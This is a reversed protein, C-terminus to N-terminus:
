RALVRPKIAEHPPAPPEDSDQEVQPFLAANIERFLDRAYVTMLATRVGVERMATLREMKKVPTGSHTAKTRDYNARAKRSARPFTALNKRFDEPQSFFAANHYLTSLVVERALATEDNVWEKKRMVKLQQQKKKLIKRVARGYAPIVVRPAAKKKRKASIKIAGRHRPKTGIKVVRRNTKRATRKVAM